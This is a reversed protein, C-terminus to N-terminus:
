TNSSEYILDFLRKSVMITNDPLMNNKIMKLGTLAKILNMGEPAPKPAFAKILTKADEIMELTLPEKFSESVTSNGDCLLNNLQSGSNSGKKIDEQKGDMKFRCPVLEIKDM